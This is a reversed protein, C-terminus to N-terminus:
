AAESEIPILSVYKRTFLTFVYVLIGRHVQYRSRHRRRRRRRSINVVM